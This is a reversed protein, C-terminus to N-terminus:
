GDDSERQLRALAGRIDEVVAALISLPDSPGLMEAREEVYGLARELQDDGTASARVEDVLVTELLELRALLDDAANRLGVVLAADAIARPDAARGTNAWLEPGIWQEGENVIQIYWHSGKGRRFPEGAEWPGPTAAALLDRLDALVTM